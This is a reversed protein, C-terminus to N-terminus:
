WPLNDLDVNGGTIIVGVRSNKELQIEPNQLAAVAVASSPEILQKTRMWVFRTTDIIEEESVTVVQKVVDRVFPWTLSGLSTRLGDAVTSPNGIEILEGSQKSRYADDANAPEAAFVPILNTQSSAVICTGSVLGGGGVPTVIADLNPVQELLELAATGQGAIVDFYNFPPIIAAGTRSQIEKMTSERSQLTPECYVVKAGFGLIANKKVEPATEPVVVTVDVKFIQAALALAAGHNGSSHTIVGASKQDPTLRSVSNIAGRFKFAGVRQLNECKLFVQHGYKQDLSQSTIVPTRHAYQKVVLAAAEVDDLTPLAARQTSM